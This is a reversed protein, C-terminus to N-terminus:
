LRELVAPQEERGASHPVARDLQQPWHWRTPTFLRRMEPMDCHFPPGGASHSQMFLIFLRGGPRLWSHLRQVYAPWHVPRLACLCTQDYVADFPAPAAWELLNAQEVRARVHLRELRGRQAAVASEALDVVTVDFGSEAMALPENSRGGGPLLIRCPTLVGNERWSLFAPNLGPREWGTAGDRYRSEWDIPPDDNM